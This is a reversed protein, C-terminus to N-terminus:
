QQGQQSQIDQLKKLQDPTFVSLSRTQAAQLIATIQSQQDATLDMAAVAEQRDKGQKRATVYRQQQAPTVVGGLKKATEQQIAALQQEQEASLGLLETLPNKRQPTNQQAVITPTEALAAIPAAVIAIAAIGALLPLVKLKM